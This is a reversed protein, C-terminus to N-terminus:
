HSYPYIHGPSIVKTTTIDNRGDVTKYCTPSVGLFVSKQMGHEADNDYCIVFAQGIPVLANREPMDLGLEARQMGFQLALESAKFVMGQVTQEIAQPIGGGCIRRLTTLISDLVHNRNQFFPSSLYETLASNEKGKKPLLAAMVAQFTSSRWKNTEKDQRLFEIYGKEVDPMDYEGIPLQVDSKGNGLLKRYAIWLELLRRKGDRPGLAGLGFPSSFFGSKLDGWIISQLLFRLQDRGERELFGSPDLHSIQFFDVSPLNHTVKGIDLNIQDFDVQLHDDTAPRYDDSNDVLSSELLRVKNELVKVEQQKNVEYQYGVNDLLQQCHDALAKLEAQHTINQQELKAEHEGRLRKLERGYGDYQKQHQEQMEDKERLLTDIETQLVTRLKETASNHRAEHNDLRNRLETNESQHKNREAQLQQQHLKRDDELQQQYRRNEDDLRKQHEDNIGKLQAELGTFKNYWDNRELILNNHNQMKKALGQNELKLKAVTDELAQVSKVQEDCFDVIMDFHGKPHKLGKWKKVRLYNDIINERKTQKDKLKEKEAEVVDKEAMLRQKELEVGQKENQLRDREGELRGISKIKGELREKEAALDAELAAVRQELTKERQELASKEKSWSEVQLEWEQIMAEQSHTTASGGQAANDSQLTQLDSSDPGQIPLVAERQDQLNQPLSSQRARFSQAEFGAGPIGPLPKLEPHHLPQPGNAPNWSNPLNIYAPSASSSYGLPSSPRSPAGPQSAPSGSPQAPPGSQLQPTPTQYRMPGFPAASGFSGSGSYTNAPSYASTPNFTRATNYTQQHNFTNPPPSFGNSSSFSGPNSLSMPDNAAQEYPSPQPYSSSRLVPVISPTQHMAATSGSSSWTGQFTADLHSFTDQSFSSTARSGQPVSLPPIYPALETSLPQTSSSQTAQAPPPQAEGPSPYGSSDNNAGPRPPQSPPTDQTEALIKNYTKPFFEAFKRQVQEPLTIFSISELKGLVSIADKGLTDVLVPASNLIVVLKGPHQKAVVALHPIQVLRSPSVRGLVSEPLYHLRDPPIVGNLVEEPLNELVEDPLQSIIDPNSRLDKTATKVAKKDVNGSTKSSSKKKAGKVFNTVRNWTAANASDRSQPTMSSTRPAIDPTQQFNKPLPVLSQVGLRSDRSVGDPPNNM